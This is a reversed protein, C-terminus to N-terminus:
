DTLSRFLPSITSELYERSELSGQLGSNRSQISHEPCYVLYDCTDGDEEIVYTKKRKIQQTTTESCRKVCIYICCDGELKHTKRDNQSYTKGTNVLFELEAFRREQSQDELRLM